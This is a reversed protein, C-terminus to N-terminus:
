VRDPPPVAPRGLRDLRVPAVPGGGCDFEGFSALVRGTGRGAPAAAVPARMAVAHVIRAPLPREWTKEDFSFVAARDPPRCICASSM